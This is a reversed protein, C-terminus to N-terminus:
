CLLFNSSIQCLCDDQGFSQWGIIGNFGAVNNSRYASILDGYMIAPYGV